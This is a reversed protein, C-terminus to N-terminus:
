GVSINIRDFQANRQFLRRVFALDRRQLRFRVGLREFLKNFAHILFIDLDFTQQRAILIRNNGHFGAEIDDNM